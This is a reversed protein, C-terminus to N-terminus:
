MVAFNHTYILFRKCPLASGCVVCLWAQDTHEGLVSIALTRMLELAVSLPDRVPITGTTNQRAM